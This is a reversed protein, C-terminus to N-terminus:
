PSHAVCDSPIADFAYNSFRKPRSSLEPGWAEVDDDDDAPGLRSEPEVRHDRLPSSCCGLDGFSCRLCPEIDRRFPVFSSLHRPPVRRKVSSAGSARRKQASRSKEPGRTGSFGRGMARASSGIRAWNSESCRPINATTRPWGHYNASGEGCQSTGVMGDRLTRGEGESHPLRLLSRLWLHTRLGLCLTRM